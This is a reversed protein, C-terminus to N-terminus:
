NPNFLKFKFNHLRFVGFSLLVLLSTLVLQRYWYNPAIYNGNVEGNHWWQTPLISHKLPPAVMDPPPIVGGGKSVPAYMLVLFNLLQWSKNLQVTSPSLSLYGCDTAFGRPPSLPSRGGGLYPKPATNQAGCASLIGGGFTCLKQAGFARYSYNLIGQRGLHRVKFTCVFTHTTSSAFVTIYFM